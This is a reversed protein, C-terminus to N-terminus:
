KRVGGRVNGCLRRIVTRRRGHVVVWKGCRRFRAGSWRGRVVIRKPGGLRGGVIWEGGGGGGSGFIRKAALLWGCGSRWGRRGTAFRDLRGFRGHGVIWRHQGYEFRMRLRGELEQTGNSNERIETVGLEGRRKDFLERVLREIAVLFRGEESLEGGGHQHSHRTVWFQLLRQAREDVPQILRGVFHAAVRRPQSLPNLM